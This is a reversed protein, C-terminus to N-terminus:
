LWAAEVPQPKKKTEAHKRKIEGDALSNEM